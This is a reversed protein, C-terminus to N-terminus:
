SETQREPFELVIGKQELKKRQYRSMGKHEKLDMETRERAKEERERRRGKSM